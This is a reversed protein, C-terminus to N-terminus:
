FGASMKLPPGLKQGATRTLVEVGGWIMFESRDRVKAFFSHTDDEPYYVADDQPPEQSAGYKSLPTRASDPQRQPGRHRINIISEEEAM